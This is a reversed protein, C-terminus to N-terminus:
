AGEFGPVNEDRLRELMEDITVKEHEDLLRAPARLVDSEFIGRRRLIRKAGLLLLELSQAEYSLLPLIQRYLSNAGLASGSRALRDIALIASSLDCGPMCGTAGRRILELYHLGGWGAVIEFGERHARTAIAGAGLTEVKLGRVLPHASRVEVPWPINIVVGSVQPSDQILIPVGATDAIQCYHSTLRDSGGTNSPPLVMLGAARAISVARQAQHVAVATSGQVGVILPVEGNLEDAVTELVQDRESDRLASAESALGLAVLGNVGDAVM